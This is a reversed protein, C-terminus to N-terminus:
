SVVEILAQIHSTVAKKETELAVLKSRFSLKDGFATHTREEEACYRIQRLLDNHKRLLVELQSWDRRRDIAFTGTFMLLEAHRVYSVFDLYLRELNLFSGDTVRGASLFRTVEERSPDLWDTLHHADVVTEESSTKSLRKPAVSLALKDGFTYFIVTPNTISQQLLQNLESLHTDKKLEIHFFYVEEYVVDETRISPINTTDSNFVALLTVEEVEDSFLKRKSATINPLELFRAKPVKANKLATGQNLALASILAEREM